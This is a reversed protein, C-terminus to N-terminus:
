PNDSGSIGSISNPHWLGRLVLRKLTGLVTKGRSVLSTERWARYLPFGRFDPTPVLLLRMALLRGFVDQRRKVLGQAVVVNEPNSPVLDLYGETMAKRLIDRGRSTRVVVLSRGPNGNAAYRHWADGCSIDAIEGM